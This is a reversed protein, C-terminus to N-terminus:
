EEGYVSAWAAAELHKRQSLTPEVGRTSIFESIAIQITEVIEKNYQDSKESINLISEESLSDSPKFSALVTMRINNVEERQENTLKRANSINANSMYLPIVYNDIAEIADLALVTLQATTRPKATRTKRVNTDKSAPPRGAGMQGTKSKQKKAAPPFKGTIGPKPPPQDLPSKVKIGAKKFIDKEQKMREIELIFDEGYINLVSDVSIVGRDLLAVILKRNASEDELNMENFRVRPLMKIDMAQCVLEIEQELWETVKGRVFNLKEVMTKLQIFSNSFNGGQGGVLVEPVGLGILIDRNVQDYKESGLIDMVPPYHPQMEIM